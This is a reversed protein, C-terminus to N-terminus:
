LVDNPPRFRDQSEFLGCFMLTDHGAAYCRKKKNQAAFGFSFDPSFFIYQIDLSFTFYFCAFWRFRPFVRWGVRWQQKNHVQNARTKQVLWLASKVSKVSLQFSSLDSHGILVYSFM